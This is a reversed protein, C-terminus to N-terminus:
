KPLVSREFWYHCIDAICQTADSLGMPKVIFGNAGNAYADSVDSPQDSTTWVVVPTHKLTESSKIRKLLDLGGSGPLNLDLLVIRRTDPEKHANLFESAREVDGFHTLAVDLNNKEIARVVVRADADSDEILVLSDAPLEHIGELM